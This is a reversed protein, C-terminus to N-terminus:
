ADQFERFHEPYKRKLEDYQKDNYGVEGEPNTSGYIVRGDKRLGLEGYFELEIGVEAAKNILIQEREEQQIVSSDNHTMMYQCFQTNHNFDDKPPEDVLIGFLEPAVSKLKQRIQSDEGPSSNMKLINDPVGAQKCIQGLCCMRGQDNLLCSSGLYLMDDISKGTAVSTEVQVKDPFYEEVEYNGCVWEARNIRFKM